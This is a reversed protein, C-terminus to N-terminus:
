PSLLGRSPPLEFVLREDQAWSHFQFWPCWQAAPSDHSLSDSATISRPCSPSSVWGFATVCSGRLRQAKPCKPWNQARYNKRVELRFSIHIMDHSECARYQETRLLELWSNECVNGLDVKRIRQQSRDNKSFKAHRIPTMYQRGIQDYRSDCRQGTLDHVNALDYIFSNHKVQMRETSTNSILM